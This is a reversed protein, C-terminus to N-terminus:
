MPGAGGRWRVISSTGDSGCSCCCCSVSPVFGLSVSAVRDSKCRPCKCVGLRYEPKTMDDPLEMPVREEEGEGEELAVAPPSDRIEDHM